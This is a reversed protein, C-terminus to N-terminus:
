TSLPCLSRRSRLRQDSQAARSQLFTDGTLEAMLGKTVLDGILACALETYEQLRPQLNPYRSQKDCKVPPPEWARGLLAPAVVDAVYAAATAM